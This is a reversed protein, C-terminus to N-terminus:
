YVSVTVVFIALAAAVLSVISDRARPRSARKVFVQLRSGRRVREVDQYNASRVLAFTFSSLGFVGVGWLCGFVVAGVHDPVLGVLPISLLVLLVEVMFFALWFWFACDMAAQLEPGLLTDGDGLRRCLALGDGDLGGRDLRHRHLWAGARAM